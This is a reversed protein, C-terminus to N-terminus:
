FEDQKKHEANRGAAAADDGDGSPNPTDQPDSKEPSDKSIALTLYMDWFFAITDMSVTRM